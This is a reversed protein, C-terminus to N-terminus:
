QDLRKEGWDSTRHKKKLWEIQVTLKGIQQQLLEVNEHVEPAKVARKGQFILEAGDALVKKWESVQGPHVGFESAIQNLTKENKSAELAVKLKLSASHTKYQRAM